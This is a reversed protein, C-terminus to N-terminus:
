KDLIKKLNKGIPNWSRKQKEQNEPLLHKHRGPEEAASVHAAV